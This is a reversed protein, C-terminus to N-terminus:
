AKLSLAWFLGIIRLPESQINAEIVEKIAKFHSGTTLVDDFLVLINAKYKLGKWKFNSKLQEIYERGRHGTAIASSQRSKIIEVPTEILLMDKFEDKLYKCVEEFNGNYNPDQRHKSTPIFALSTTNAPSLNLITQIAPKLDKAFERRSEQIYKLPKKPNQETAKFNYIRSNAQSAQFGGGPTYIMYFYCEDKSPDIHAINHNLSIKQWSYSM